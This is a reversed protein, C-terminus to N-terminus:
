VKPGPLESTIRVPLVLAVPEAAPVTSLSWLLLLMLSMAPPVPTTLMKEQNTTQSFGRCCQIVECLGLRVGKAMDSSGTFGTRSCM